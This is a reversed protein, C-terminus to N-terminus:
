QILNRNHCGHAVNYFFKTNADESKQCTVMLRQRWYVEEQLLTVFLDRRLDLEHNQEVTNLTRTDRIIDFAKLSHLLKLKRDRIAM